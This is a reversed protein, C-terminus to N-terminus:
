VGMARLWDEVSRPALGLLKQASRDAPIEEGAQEARNRYSEVVPTTAAEGFLPRIMEGMEEPAIARYSVPAGLYRSFGDALDAGVLGPLAGVSVIGTVEPTQLLRVVVEAVDLHSSWSTAYDARLPYSLVGEHVAALLPPLLLNELYLRPEVIAHSVGSAALERAMVNPAVLDDGGAGITFGSTSFVVRRPQAQRLAEGIVLARQRQADPHGLPLHLFVGDAGEYAAALSGVSSLDVAVAEGDVKSTDRVAAVASLGAAALASLVPSGQAGTAGHVIYTM